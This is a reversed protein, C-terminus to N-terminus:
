QRLLILPTFIGDKGVLAKGAKMDAISKSKFEEFDFSAEEKEIPM